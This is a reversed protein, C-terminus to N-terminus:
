GGTVPRPKSQTPGRLKNNSRLFPFFSAAIVQALKALSSM